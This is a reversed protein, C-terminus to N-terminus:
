NLFHTAILLIILMLTIGHMIGTLYDIWRKKNEISQELQELTKM